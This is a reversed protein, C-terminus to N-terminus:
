QSSNDSFPDTNNNNTITITRTPDISKDNFFRKDPSAWQASIPLIVEVEQSRKDPSAFLTKSIFFSLLGSIFVIVVILAIDKQKM